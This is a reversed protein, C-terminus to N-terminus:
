GFCSYGTRPHKPLKGLPDSYGCKPHKPGWTGIYVDSQPGLIDNLLVHFRQDLAMVPSNGVPSRVSAEYLQYM